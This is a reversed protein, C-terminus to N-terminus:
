GSKALSAAILALGLFGLVFGLKKRKTLQTREKFLLWGSVIVLVPIGFSDIPLVLGLPVISLTWYYVALSSIIGAGALFAKWIAPSILKGPEKRQAFLLPLSGILAGGYWFVLFTGQPIQASFSFYRMAVNIGGYILVACAVYALWYKGSRIKGAVLFFVATFMFITGFVFWQDRYLVAEGLLFAGGLVGAVSSLPEVLATDSLSMRIAQWQTFAGFANVFGLVVVWWALDHAGLSDTMAAYGLAMLFALAFVLTLARAQPLADVTIKLAIQAAVLVVLHLSLAAVILIISSAM